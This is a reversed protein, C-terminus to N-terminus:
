TFQFGIENPFDSIEFKSSQKNGNGDVSRKECSSFFIILFIICIFYFIKIM